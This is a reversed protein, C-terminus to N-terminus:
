AREGKLTFDVEIPIYKLTHRNWRLLRMLGMREAVVASCIGIKVPDGVLALWDDPQFDKLVERARALAHQPSLHVQGPPFVAIVKSGFDLAAAFDLRPDDSTIFVRAM